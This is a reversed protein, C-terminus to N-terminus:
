PSPSPTVSPPLLPSAEPDAATPKVEFQRYMGSLYHSAGNSFLNCILVYDGTEVPVSLEASEGAPIEEIRAVVDVQTEDVGANAPKRPLEATPLNSRVVLFQHTIEGTNRVKFIVTGPRASATDPLIVYEKLEM